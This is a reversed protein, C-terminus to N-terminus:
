ATRHHLSFFTFTVSVQLSRRLKSLSAIFYLALLKGGAFPIDSLRELDYSCRRKEPFTESARLFDLTEGAMPSIDGSSGPGTNM